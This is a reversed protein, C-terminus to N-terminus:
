RVPEGDALIEAVHMVRLPVGQRRALGDLHLLCSLDVSAIVEAGAACHDRIRDRGMMTSVGTEEVSFTGGFGCCEDVRELDVLQLGELGSLLGAVPDRAPLVLESAVGLRLGRLAHCSRQLGVRFPFHGAFREIGAVETLFECLEYVRSCVVEREVDDAMLSAYHERVMAVCSGSPCVVYDFDAFVRVFREALLRAEDACGINALPQGCCTQQRPYEPRVGIRRLVELTAFAVRPVWQDV